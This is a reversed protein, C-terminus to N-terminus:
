AEGLDRLVWQIAQYIDGAVHDPRPSERNPVQRMQEKGHGTLVLISKIGVKKGLVVDSLHDGIVYSACLDLDLDRAADQLM